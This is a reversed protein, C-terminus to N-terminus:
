IKKVGPQEKKEKVALTTQPEDNNLPQLPQPNQNHVMYYLLKEKHPVLNFDKWEAEVHIMILTASKKALASNKPISQAQYSTTISSKQEQNNHVSQDQTWLAREGQYIFNKMAIMGHWTNFNKLARNLLNSELTLLTTGLLAFIALAIMVEIFAFGSNKHLNKSAM